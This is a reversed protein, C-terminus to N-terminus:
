EAVILADLAIAGEGVAFVTVPNFDIERIEPRARMLAGVRAVIAALAAVDRAPAGRLPGFLKAGKLRTIEAAIEGEELDPPLLRVDNVAEAWIGGLGVLLVAGWRADRRAGVITELGPRAMAEVLIGDLALKKRRAIAELRRWAAPLGRASVNLAVGGIDSKHSLEPSQLKLAVPHGLTAAADQAAALDRVLRGPPVPVGLAALYAKSAHEPVIGSSPLPPAADPERQMRGRKAARAHLTVRALARLAREPSRFFPVGAARAEGILTPPLETDDGLLGFIAPKGTDIVPHLAARAKNLPFEGGGTVIVALLISGFSPDAILPALTRAYLDLHLIGQATVDLPNSPGVFEPLERRLTEATDPLLAPLDLGLEECLDLTMGKFAGSDTLV